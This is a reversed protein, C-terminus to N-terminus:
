TGKAYLGDKTVVPIVPPIMYQFRQISSGKSLKIESRWDLKDYNWIFDSSVGNDKRLNYQEIFGGEIEM